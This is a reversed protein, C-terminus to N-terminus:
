LGDAGASGTTFPGLHVGASPQLDARDVPFSQSYNFWFGPLLDRWPEGDSLQHQRSRVLAPKM